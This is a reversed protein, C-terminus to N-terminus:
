PCKWKKWTRSWSKIAKSCIKREELECRLILKSFTVNRGQSSFLFVAHAPGSSLLIGSFAGHNCKRYSQSLRGVDNIWAPEVSLDAQLVPWDLVVVSALFLLHLWVVHIICVAVSVRTMCLEDRCHSIANVWARLVAVPYSAWLTAGDKTEFARGLASGYLTM